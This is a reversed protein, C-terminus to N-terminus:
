DWSSVLTIAAVLPIRLSSGSSRSSVSGGGKRGSVSAEVSSADGNSSVGDDSLARWAPISSLISRSSVLGVSCSFNFRIGGGGGNPCDLRVGVGGRSASPMGSGWRTVSSSRSAVWTEGAASDVGAGCRGAERGREADCGRGCTGICDWVEGGLGGSSFDGQHCVIKRIGLREFRRPSGFKLRAPPQKRRAIIQINNTPSTIKKAAKEKM